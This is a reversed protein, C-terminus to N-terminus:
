FYRKLIPMIRFKMALYVMYERWSPYINHFRIRHFAYQSLPLNLVASIYEQKDEGHLRRNSMLKPIYQTLAAVALGFSYDTYRDINYDQIQKIKADYMRLFSEEMRPNYKQLRMISNENLRYLYLADNTLLIRQSHALVNTIFITDEGISCREDFRIGKDLILQRRFMYRWAFCLDNSQQLNQNSAMLEPFSLVQDVTFQYKKVKHSDSLEYACGAVDLDEQEMMRVLTELYNPRLVDDADVFSLFDGNAVGIGFNRAVSPGQNYQTYVRFRSDNAAWQEIIALSRDSSGDNVCICEWDISTQAIISQLCDELYQEANYIPIVFSVKPM